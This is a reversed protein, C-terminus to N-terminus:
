KSCIGFKVPEPCNGSDECFIGIIVGTFGECVETSIYKSEMAALQQWEGNENKAHLKYCNADASIKLSITDSNLSIEGMKIEVGGINIIGTVKCGDSSKTVSLDYHNSENM